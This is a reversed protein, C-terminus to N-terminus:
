LEMVIFFFFASAPVKEWKSVACNQVARVFKEVGFLTM